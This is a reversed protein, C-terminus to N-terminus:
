SIQYIMQVTAGFMKLIKLRLENIGSWSSSITEQIKFKVNSIGDLLQFVWRLTPNQVQKNIQNPLSKGTEKLCNRLRREAIAYVLLALTMVMLMAQIRSPKKIFLSSTFFLPDKLFRFGREVSQQESYNDIIEKASLHSAEVNTALVYCSDREIFSNISEVKEEIQLKIQYVLKDPVAGLKPRGKTSYIKLEEVAVSTPLHFDWKKTKEELAKRADAECFFRDAQLHLIEKEIKSKEKQVKKKITEEVRRQAPISHVVIWRQAIEYHIKEFVKYKRDESHIQWNMTESQSKQIVDKVDNITEPVRTIFPLDKLNHSNEKSYLKSDAILYSPSESNKFSEVLAKTRANFVENDSTNGDWTKTFLPVASDQSVLLEQVVQKLDPRHDKSYGHTVKIANEDSDELYLGTLSFTTTDLHKFRTDIGEKECAKNAIHAFMTDCGFEYIEDLTRGLKFRNFDEARINERFLLEIPCNYFFQPTLTMPRDTFGLGNIIMGAVAEGASIKEDVHKGLFSDILEILGLEKIIGAVIGHHDMRDVQVVEM